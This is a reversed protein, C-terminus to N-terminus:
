GCYPGELAIECTDLVPLSLWFPITSIKFKLISRESKLVSIFHIIHKTVWWM